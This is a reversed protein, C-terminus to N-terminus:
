RIVIIVQCVCGCTCWMINYSTGEAKLAASEVQTNYCALLKSGVICKTADSMSISYEKGFEPGVDRMSLKELLGLREFEPTAWSTGNGICGHVDM